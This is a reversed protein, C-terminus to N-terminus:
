AYQVRVVLTAQSQNGRAETAAVTIVTQGPAFVEGPQKPTYAVAVAGDM